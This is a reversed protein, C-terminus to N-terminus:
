DLLMLNLYHVNKMNKMKELKEPMKEETDANFSYVIFSDKKSEIKEKIIKGLEIKREDRLDNSYYELNKRNGNNM